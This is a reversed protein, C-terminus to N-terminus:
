DKVSHSSGLRQESICNKSQFRGGPRHPRWLRLEQTGSASGSGSRSGAGGYSSVKRSRVMAGGVAVGVSRCFPCASGASARRTLMARLARYGRTATTSPTPFLHYAGNSSQLAREVEDATQHANATVKCAYLSHVPRDLAPSFVPVTAM